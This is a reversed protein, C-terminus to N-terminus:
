EEDGEFIRLPIRVQPSTDVIQPQGNPSGDNSTGTGGTVDQAVVCYLFDMDGLLCLSYFLSLRCADEDSM